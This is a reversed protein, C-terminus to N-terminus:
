VPKAGEEESPLHGHMEKYCKSFYSLCIFGVAYAVESVNGEASQLMERATQLRVQRLYATPTKQYHKKVLRQFKSASMHFSQAVEENFRFDYNSIQQHVLANFGDEFSASKQIRKTTNQTTLRQQLISKLRQRSAIANKVRIRLEAAQFPKPLYDDAGSEWGEMRSEQSAKATLLMVPISSTSANERIRKLLGLGDLEPMMVDSVILDPLQRQVTEWAEAGNAAELISFEDRLTLAVFRRIDPHDDVVLVKTQQDHDARDSTEHGHQLAQAVEALPEETQHQASEKELPLWVEFRSGKGEQSEVTIKGKHLDVLDKVLSLGIGSGITASVKHESQYFREFLRPQDAEPIGIGNDEVVFALGGEKETCHLRVEGQSDTFKLANSLLNSLIKELKDGDAQYWLPVVPDEFVLKVGRAEAGGSFRRALSHCFEGINMAELQLQMQGTELKAVDLLQSILQILHDTNDSAVLLQDRMLATIEGYRGQLAEILPGHILTLPSRLEHSVNTYFRSKAEGLEELQDAQRVVKEWADVTAQKEKKLEDTRKDVLLQLAIERRKARWIRWFFLALIFVTFLFIVSVKFAMTQYIFPRVNLQLLTESGFDGDSNAARLRFTYEGPPMTPYFARRRNGASIWGPDFGDMQYQYEIFEPDQFSPATYSIELNKTGAPIWSQGESLELQQQDAVISEVIIATLSAAPLVKRPDVVTVGDMTPFLIQGNQRKWGAPQFGGNTESNGMGHDKTFGKSSVVTIEGRAFALLEERSTRSIGRNCSMWFYGEDDEVIASVLDDYLGYQASIQVFRDDLFLFLGSGYTGVWLFGERDYYLSRIKTSSLGQEAGFHEAKGNSYRILGNGRTGAWVAGSPEYAIARVRPSVAAFGLDVSTIAGDKLVDLGGEKGILLRQYFPDYALAMVPKSEYMPFAQFSPDNGTWQIAKLGYQFGGVWITGQGDGAISWVGEDPMIQHVEDEVFVNLGNSPTGVWLRNQEDEYVSAIVNGSLGNKGDVSHIATPKFQALGGGDTGVWVSGESDEFLATIAGIPFAASDMRQVHGTRDALFVGKNWSGMWHQGKSDVIHKHISLDTRNSNREHLQSHGEKWSYVGNETGLLIASGRDHVAYRLSASGIQKNGLALSLGEHKNWKLLGRNSSLLLTEESTKSMHHITTENLLSDQVKTFVSIEESIEFLGQNYVAALLQGDPGELFFHIGAVGWAQEHGFHRISDGELMFVGNDETGIWMRHDRDEFIALIRQYQLEPHPPAVFRVGDFRVVGGFTGLWLYGDHSQCIAKVSNQPLGDENTYVQLQYFSLQSSQGFVTQGFLCCGFVLFYLRLFSRFM